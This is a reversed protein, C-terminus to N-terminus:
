ALADWLMRATTFVVLAAFVFRLRKLDIWRALASGAPETLLLIPAILAFGLLNVYGLSDPPLAAAHWGALVAGISAPVAVFAGLASASDTSRPRPSGRLLSAPLSVTRGGIGTSAAVFGETFSFALRGVFRPTSVTAIPRGRGLTVALVVLVAAVGFLLALTKGSAFALLCSGLAVGILVAIWDRPISRDASALAAPVSAALSTGVAVHMRVSEDLRLTALVHYLIPVMVISGDIALVGALLGGVVGALVLGLALVGIDAPPVAHFIDM